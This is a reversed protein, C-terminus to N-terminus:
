QFKDKTYFNPGHFNKFPSPCLGRVCCFLAEKVFFNSRGTVARTYIKVTLNMPPPPEPGSERAASIFEERLQLFLELFM